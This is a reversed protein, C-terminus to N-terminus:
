KDLKFVLHAKAARAVQPLDKPIPEYRAAYLAERAASDFIGRASGEVIKVNSTHGDPKVTYLLDVWGQAGTSAAEVPYKPQIPKLLVLAPALAAGSKGDQSTKARQALREQFARSLDALAPNQPDAAKLSNLYYSASDNAPELLSGQATRQAILSILRDREAKEQVSREHAAANRAQEAARDQQTRALAAAKAARDADEQRRRLDDRLQALKEAPLLKSRAAEDIQQTAHEYNGANLAALITASASEVRLQIVKADLGPLRPDDRNIARAAEIAQLAPEFRRQELATEAKSLLLESLRSLGQKAEANGADLAQVRRYFTLASNDPPEIFRRDLMAQTARELWTDVNDDASSHNVSQPTVANPAAAAPQASGKASDSRTLFYGAAGAVVALIAGMAVFIKIRKASVPVAPPAAQTGLLAIRAKMEECARNLADNFSDTEFPVSVMSVILQQEVLRQWHASRDAIDLVMVAIRVSHRHVRALQGSYDAEGRADWIVVGAREPPTASLLEDISDIQQLVVDSAVVAGVMPWLADDNTVLMATRKQSRFSANAVGATAGAAGMTDPAAGATAGAKDAVIRELSGMSWVGPM